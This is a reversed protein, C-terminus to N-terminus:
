VCDLVRDLAVSSREEAGNCLFLGSSTQHGPPSLGVSEAQNRLCRRLRRRFRGPLWEGHPPGAVRHAGHRDVVRGYLGSVGFTTNQDAPTGIRGAFLYPDRDLGTMDKGTGTTVSVEYDYKPLAGNLSFGWDKKFGANHM